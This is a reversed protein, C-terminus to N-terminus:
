AFIQDVEAAVIGFQRAYLVIEDMEEIRPEVAAEQHHLADRPRRRGVNKFPDDTVFRDM